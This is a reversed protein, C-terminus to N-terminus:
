GNEEMATRLLEIIKIPNHVCIHRLYQESHLTAYWQAFRKSYYLSKLSDSVRIYNYQCQNWAKNLRENDKQEAAYRLSLALPYIDSNINVRNRRLITDTIQKIDSIQDPLLYGAFTNNIRGDRLDIGRVDLRELIRRPDYRSHVANELLWDRLLIEECCYLEAESKIVKFIEEGIAPNKKSAFVASAIAAGVSIDNTDTVKEYLKLMDAISEEFANMLASYDPDYTSFNDMDLSNLRGCQDLIMPTVDSSYRSRIETWKNIMCDCSEYGKRLTEIMYHSFQLKTRYERIPVLEAYKDDKKSCFASVFSDVGTTSHDIESRLQYINGRPREHCLYVNGDKVDLKEIIRVNIVKEADGSTLNTFNNKYKDNAGHWSAYKTVPDRRVAFVPSNSNKNLDTCYYKRLVSMVSSATADKSRSINELPLWIWEHTRVNECLYGRGDESDIVALPRVSFIGNKNREIGIRYRGQHASDDSCYRLWITRGSNFYKRICRKVIVSTLKGSTGLQESMNLIILRSGARLLITADGIGAIFQACFAEGIEPNGPQPYSVTLENKARDSTEVRMPIRGGMAIFLDQYAFSKKLWPDDQVWGRTGSEDLTVRADDFGDAKLSQDEALKISVIDGKEPYMLDKLYSLGNDPSLCMCDPLPDPKKIFSIYRLHFANCGLTICGFEWKQVKLFANNRILSRMGYRVDSISIELPKGPEREKTELRIFDGAAFVDTRLLKDADYEFDIKLFKLPLKVVRGPMLEVFISNRDRGAVPYYNELGKQDEPVGFEELEHPPFAYKMLEQEPYRLSWGDSFLVPLDSNQPYTFTIEDRGRIICTTRDHYHWGGREIHNLLENINGDFFTIRHFPIFKEPIDHKRKFLSLRRKGATDASVKLYGYLLVDECRSIEHHDILTGYRPPSIRALEKGLMQNSLQIQPLGAITFHMDQPDNLARRSKLLLEVTRGPECFQKDSDSVTDVLLKGEKLYLKGIGGEDPLGKGKQALCLIGPRIEVPVMPGAIPPKGFVIMQSGTRRVWERVHDIRRRPLTKISGTIGGKNEEIKVLMPQNFVSLNGQMFYTRLVSERYSFNRRYVRIETKSGTDSLMKNRPFPLHFPIYYDNGGEKQCIDGGTLCLVDGKEVSTISYRMKLLSSDWEPKVLMYGEGGDPLQSRVIEETNKDLYGSHYTDFSWAPNNVELKKEDGAITISQIIVKDKEKNRSVKLFPKGHKDGFQKIRHDFSFDCDELSLVQLLLGTGNKIIKYKRIRDGYFFINEPRSQNEITFNESEIQLQYGLGWEFIMHNNELRLFYLPCTEYVKSGTYRLNLWKRFMALDFVKTDNPDACPGGCWRIRCLAPKNMFRQPVEFDSSSLPIRNTWKQPNDESPTVGDLPLYQLPREPQFLVLGFSSVLKGEIQYDWEPDTIWTQYDDFYRQALRVSQNPIEASMSYITKAAAGTDPVPDSFVRRVDYLTNNAADDHYEKLQISVRGSLMGGSSFMGPESEGYYTRNGQRCVVIENGNDSRYGNISSVKFPGKGLGCVYDPDNLPPKDYATLIGKNYDQVLYVLSDDEDVSCEGLYLQNPGAAANGSIKKLKWLRRGIMNRARNKKPLYQACRATNQTVSVPLGNYAGKVGLSDLDAELNRVHNDDLYKIAAKGLSYNTQWIIGNPRSANNLPPVVSLVVAPNQIGHSVAYHDMSVSDSEIWLKIGNVTFALLLQTNEENGRCAVINNLKILSGRHLGLITKIFEAEQHSDVHSLSKWDRDPLIRVNGTRQRVIDWGTDAVCFHDTEKNHELSDLRISKFKNKADLLDRRSVSDGPQFVSRYELNCTDFGTEPDSLELVPIGNHDGVSISIRLGCPNTEYDESATRIKEQLIKYSSSEWFEASLRYNFGPAASILIGNEDSEILTVAAPRAYASELLFALFDREVPIIEDERKEIPVTIEISGAVREACLLTDPDWYNNWQKSDCLVTNGATIQNPRITVTLKKNNEYQIDNFLLVLKNRFQSDKTIQEKNRSVFWLLLYLRDDVAAKKEAIQFPSLLQNKDGKASLQGLLMSFYLCKLNKLTERQQMKSESLVTGVAYQYFIADRSLDIVAEIIVQSIDRADAAIPESVPSINAFAETTLLAQLLEISIFRSSRAYEEKKYIGAINEAWKELQSRDEKEIVDIANINQLIATFKRTLAMIVFRYRNSEKNPLTISTCKWEDAPYTKLLLETEAFKKNQGLWEEKWDRLHMNDVVNETILEPFHEYALSVPKGLIKYPDIRRYCEDDNIFRCFENLAIECIRAALSQNDGEMWIRKKQIVPITGSAEEYALYSCALVSVGSHLYREQTSIQVAEGRFVPVAKKEILAVYLGPISPNFYGKGVQVSLECAYALISIIAPSYKREGNRADTESYFGKEIYSKVSPGAMVDYLNLSLDGLFENVSSSASIMLAVLPMALSVKMAGNQTRISVYEPNRAPTNHQKDSQPYNRFMWPTRDSNSDRKEKWIRILKDSITSFSGERIARKVAFYWLSYEWLYYLANFYEDQTIDISDRGRFLWSASDRLSDDQIVKKFYVPIRLKLCEEASLGATQMAIWAYLLDPQSCYQTNFPMFEDPSNDSFLFNHKNIIEAAITTIYRGYEGRVAKKIQETWNNDGEILGGVEGANLELVIGFAMIQDTHPILDIYETESVIGPCANDNKYNQLLITLTERNQLNQSFEIAEPNRTKKCITNILYVAQRRLAAAADSLAVHLLLPLSYVQLNLDFTQEIEKIASGRLEESLSDNDLLELSSLFVISEDVSLQNLTAAYWHRYM